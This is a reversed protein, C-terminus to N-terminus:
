AGEGWGADWKAISEREAKTFGIGLYHDSMTKLDHGMSKSIRTIMDEHASIRWSLCTKRFCKPNVGESGGDIGAKEAALKLAQYWASDTPGILTMKRKGTKTKVAIEREDLELALFKEIAIAGNLTLIVQRWAKAKKKLVSGKPFNILRRTKDFWEPHKNLRRIEVPRAGSYLAADCMKRYQDNLQGRFTQYEEPCSFIRTKAGGKEDYVYIATV